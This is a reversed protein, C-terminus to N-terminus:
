VDEMTAVAMIAAFMGALVLTLIVALLVTM